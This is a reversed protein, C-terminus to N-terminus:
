NILKKRQYKKIKLHNKKLMNKNEGKSCNLKNLIIEILKNLRSKETVLETIYLNKTRKKIQKNKIKNFKFKVNEFIM